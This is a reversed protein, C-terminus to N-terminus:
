RGKAIEKLKKIIGDESTQLYKQVTRYDKSDQYVLRKAEEVRDKIKGKWVHFISVRYRGRSLSELWGKNKLERIGKKIADDSYTLSNLDLFERFRARFTADYTIYNEKDMELVCFCVLATACNPNLELMFQMMVSYHQTFEDDLDFEITQTKRYLVEETTKLRITKM